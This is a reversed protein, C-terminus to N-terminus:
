NLKLLQKLGCEILNEGMGAFLQSRVQHFIRGVTMESGLTPQQVIVQDTIKESTRNSQFSGNGYGTLNPPLIYSQRGQQVSLNVQCAGVILILASCDRIIRAAFRYTKVFVSPM